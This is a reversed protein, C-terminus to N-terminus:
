TVMATMRDKGNVDKKTRVKGYSQRGRKRKDREKYQKKTKKM